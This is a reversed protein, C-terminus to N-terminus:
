GQSFRSAYFSNTIGAAFATLSLLLLIGGWLAVVSYQEQLIGDDIIKAMLLPQVLEVVLELLMLILAISASSKYTKTYALVYRM